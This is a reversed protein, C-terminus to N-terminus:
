RIKDPLRCELTFLVFPKGDQGMQPPLYNILRVENTKGLANKFYATEAIKQKYTNIQDGANAGTDRADMTLVVKETVTSPKAKEGAKPKPAENLTYSEEARFRALQVEDVTAQQMANLVTGNLFRNTALERLSHLKNLTDDLKKQNSTAADFAKANFAIQGQVRAVESKVIIGRLFLMTSWLLMLFVLFVGVWVARKVPDRRRSEEIAQAEALLNIRIPM